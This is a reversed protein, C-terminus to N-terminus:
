AVLINCSAVECNLCPRHVKVPQEVRQRVGRSPPQEVFESLAISLRQEFEVDPEDGPVLRADSPLSKRPVERHQLLHAKQPGFPAPAALVVKENARREAVRPFDPKSRERALFACCSVISM